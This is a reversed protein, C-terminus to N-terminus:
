GRWVGEELVRREDITLTKFPLPEIGSFHYADRSVIVRVKMLPVRFATWVETAFSAYEPVATTGLVIRVVDIRCDHPLTQCLVPYKGTYTLGNRRSAIAAADPLLEGRSSFPNVPYALLPPAPWRDTVLQAEPVPLGAHRAVKLAIPVVYADLCEAATPVVAEGRQEADLSAYYGHTLYTYDGVLNARVPTSPGFGWSAPARQPDLELWRDGAVATAARSPTKLGM